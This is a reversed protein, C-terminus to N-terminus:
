SAPDELLRETARPEGLQEPLGRRGLALDVSAIPIALQAVLAARYLVVDGYAVLDLIGVRAVDWSRVCCYGVRTLNSNERSEIKGKRRISNTRDHETLQALACVGLRRRRARPRRRARLDLPRLHARRAVRLAAGRRTRVLCAHRIFDPVSM